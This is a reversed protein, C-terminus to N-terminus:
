HHRFCSRWATTNRTPLVPYSLLSSALVVMATFQQECLYLLFRFLFYPDEDEGEAGEGEEEVFDVEKGV